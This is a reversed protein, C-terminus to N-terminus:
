AGGGGLIRVTRWREILATVAHPLGGAQQGMDHRDEYYTAALIMVAQGLDVPVQGWDTGFGADLVIEIHGDDPVNPFLYGTSALKPRHTDPVLRWNAPAVATQVGAGDVLTVSVVQTVPALPLPQEDLSKWEEIRWSFRRQLLAKGVRGEIAAMAARLVGTLLSDQLSDEGFGTGLRLQNKLTQLPLATDPVTTLETLIM